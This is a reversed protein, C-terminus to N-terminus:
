KGGGRARAWYIELQGPDLIAALEQYHAELNQRKVLGLSEGSGGAEWAAVVQADRQLQMQLAARMEGTQAPTLGLWREIKPMTDDLRQLQGEQKARFGRAAEGKRLDALTEAVLDEFGGSAPDLWGPGGQPLPLGLSRRVEERLALLQDETAYGALSPAVSAQASPRDELMELQQGLIWQREQLRDLEARLGADTLAPGSAGGSAGGPGLLAGLLAVAGVLVATGSLLIHRAM